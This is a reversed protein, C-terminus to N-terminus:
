INDLMKSAHVAVMAPSQFLAHGIEASSTDEFTNSGTASENPWEVSTTTNDIGVRPNMIQAGSLFGSSNLADTWSLDNWDPITVPTPLDREVDM